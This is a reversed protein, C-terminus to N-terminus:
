RWGNGGTTEVRIGVAAEEEAEQLRREVVCMEFIAADVLLPTDAYNFKDLASELMSQLKQM